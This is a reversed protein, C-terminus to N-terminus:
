FPAFLFSLIISYWFHLSHALMFQSKLGPRKFVFTLVSAQVETNVNWRDQPM